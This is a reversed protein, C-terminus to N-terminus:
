AVPHQAPTEAAEATQGQVPENEIAPKSEVVTESAASAATEQPTATEQQNNSMAQSFQSLAGLASNTVKNVPDTDGSSIFSGWNLDKTSERFERLARGLSSGMEIMRKPGFVVLAVGCIILIEFWHGFM